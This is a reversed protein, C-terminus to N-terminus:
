GQLMFDTVSQAVRRIGEGGPERRQRLFYANAYFRYIPEVFSYRRSDPDFRLVPGGDDVTLRTLATDVAPRSVARSKELRQKIEHVVKEATAGTTPLKALTRLASEEYSTKTPESNCNARDFAAKLTDELSEAYEIVASRLNDRGVSIPRDLTSRIGCVECIGLCLRHCIAGMGQSYKVIATRVKADMKFNLLQEGALIIGMLEADDMLPVRLEHVRNKMEADYQIVQRATDVAGVAVIKVAPHDLSADAFLKMVQALKPKEAIDLKHFDDLIWCSHAEGLFTALTQAAVPVGIVRQHTTQGSGSLQAGLDARFAGFNASISATHQRSQVTAVESTYFANLQNLADYMLQDFTMGSHCRTLVEYAYTQRLKNVLLTTKGSGTHGFVVIQMGPTELASVLRSGIGDREVFTEIAPQTPTFVKHVDHIDRPVAM